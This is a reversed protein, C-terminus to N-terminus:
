DLPHVQSGCLVFLATYLVPGIVAGVISVFYMYMYVYQVQVFHFQLMLERHQAHAPEESYPAQLYASRGQQSNYNPTRTSPVPAAPLTSSQVNINPARRHHPQVQLKTRVQAGVCRGPGQHHHLRSHSHRHIAISRTSAAGLINVGRQHHYNCRPHAPSLPVRAKGQPVQMTSERETSATLYCKARM